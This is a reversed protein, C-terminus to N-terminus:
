YIKYPSFHIPFIKSCCFCLRIKIPQCFQRCIEVGPSSYNLISVLFTPLAHGAPACCIPSAKDRLRTVIQLLELQRLIQLVATSSRYLDRQYNQKQNRRYSRNLLARHTNETTLDNFSHNMFSSLEILKRHVTIHSDTLLSKLAPRCRTQVPHVRPRCPTQVPDVRFRCGTSM